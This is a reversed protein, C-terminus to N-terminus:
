TTFYQGKACAQAKPASTVVQVPVANVSCVFNTAELEGHALYM